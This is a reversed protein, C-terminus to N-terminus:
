DEKKFVNFRIDEVVHLDNLMGANELITDIQSIMDQKEEETSPIKIDAWWALMEEELEERSSFHDDNFTLGTEVLKYGEGELYSKILENSKGIRIAHEESPDFVKFLENTVADETPEVFIICNSLRAMEKLIERKLDLDMSFTGHSLDFEHFSTNLLVDFEKDKFTTNKADMLLLQINNYDKLNETAMELFNEDVDIGVVNKAYKALIATYKGNSFGQELANDVSLYKGLKKWMEEFTIKM